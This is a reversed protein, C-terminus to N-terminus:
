EDGGIMWELLSAAKAPSLRLVVMGDEASASRPLIASEEAPVEVARVAALRPKEVAPEKPDEDLTWAVGALFGQVITTVIIDKAPGTPNLETSTIVSDAVAQVTAFEEADLNELALEQVSQNFATQIDM